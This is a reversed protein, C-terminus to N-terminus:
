QPESPPLPEPPVTAGMFADIAEIIAAEEVNDEALITELEVKAASVTELENQALEAAAEAEAVRADDQADDALAIALEEKLRAIEAADAQQKSACFGILETVKQLLAMAIRLLDNNFTESDM